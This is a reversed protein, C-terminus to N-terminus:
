VSSCRPPQCVVKSGFGQSVLWKATEGFRTNSSLWKSSLPKRLKFCTCLGSSPYFSMKFCPNLIKMMHRGGYLNQSETLFGAGPQGVLAQVRCKVVEFFLTHGFRLQVGPQARRAPFGQEVAFARSPALQVSGHLRAHRVAGAGFWDQQRMGAGDFPRHNGPGRAADGHAECWVLPRGSGLCAQPKRRM